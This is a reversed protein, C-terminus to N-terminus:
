KANELNIRVLRRLHAAVLIAAALQHFFGECDIELLAEAVSIPEEPSEPLAHRLMTELGFGEHVIEQGIVEIVAFRPPDIAAIEPLFDISPVTHMGEQLLLGSRHNTIRCSRIAVQDQIPIARSGEGM